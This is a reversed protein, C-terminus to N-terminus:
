RSRRIPERSSRLLELALPHEFPLRELLLFRLEETSDAGKALAKSAISLLRRLDVVYPLLDFGGEVQPMLEALDALSRLASSLWSPAAKGEEFAGALSALMEAGRRSPDWPTCHFDALLRWGDRPGKLERPWPSGVGCARALGHVGHLAVPFVSSPNLLYGCGDPVRDELSGMYIRRLCYDDALLNDWVLPRGDLGPVSLDDHGLSRSVVQSGTWLLEWGKPLMAALRQIYGLGQMREVLEMCYVAPCVTVPVGLDAAASVALDLHADALKEDARDVQDDFLIAVGSAGADV